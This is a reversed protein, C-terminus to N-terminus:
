KMFFYLRFIVIPKLSMRFFSNPFLDCRSKRSICGYTSRIRASYAFISDKSLSSSRRRTVSMRSCICSLTAGSFARIASILSLMSLTSYSSRSFIHSSTSLISFVMRSLYSFARSSARGCTKARTFAVALRKASFSFISTVAVWNSRSRAALPCSKTCISPSLAM